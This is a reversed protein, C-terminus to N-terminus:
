LYGLHRVVCEHIYASRAGLLQLLHERVEKAYMSRLKEEDKFDEYSLKSEIKSVVFGQKDLSLEDLIGRMDHVPIDSVEEDQYNQLPLDDTPPYLLIYPKENSPCSHEKLFTMRATTVAM